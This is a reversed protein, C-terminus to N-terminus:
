ILHRRTSHILSRPTQDTRCGTQSQQAHAKACVDIFVLFTIFEDDYTLAIIYGHTQLVCCQDSILTLQPIIIISMKQHLVAGKIARQRRVAEHRREATTKKMSM